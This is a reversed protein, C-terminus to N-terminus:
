GVQNFTLADDGKSNKMKILLDMFDNREVKNEERYKITDRVVGMYFNSIDEPIQKMHLKRALERNRSMLVRKILNM